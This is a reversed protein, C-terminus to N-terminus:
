MWGKRKFWFYIFATIVLMLGLVTPYGLPQELEPMFKFNMGYIGVIFTLPLFFATFVTLTRMVENTRQGSLSIYIYLLSNIGEFTEEIQTDNKLYYDELDKQHPSKKNITGLNLVVEKSLNLLKRIVFTKRKILYINKLLDPIRKKLFIRSEYFEVENDLRGIPEEFTVFSSKVIKAVIDLPNGLTAYKAMVENHQAFEKRHVSIIFDRSFFIAIKRTLEHINDASKSCEVDYYRIIIFHVDEINEYKPLHEPQLCDQVAHSHLNFRAALEDLEQSSPNVVDIWEFSSDSKSRIVQQM